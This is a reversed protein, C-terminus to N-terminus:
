ILTLASYKVADIAKGIEGLDSTMELTVKAESSFTVVGFRDREDIQSKVEVYEKLAKKVADIRNPRFDRRFMSRSTDICIIVDEIRLETM